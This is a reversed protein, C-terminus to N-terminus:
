CSKKGANLGIKYGSQILEDYTFLQQIELASLARNYIRIEDIDGKYAILRLPDYGIYLYSVESTQVDGLNINTSESKFKGDIYLKVTNVNERVGVVFHWKYDKVLETTTLVASDHTGSKMGFRITEPSETPDGQILQVFHLGSEIMFIKNYNGDNPVRLWFVISYDDMWPSFFESNKISIYDDTGDFSFAGNKNGFRDPVEIAGYIEGHNNNGSEDNANGNFPFYAILNQNIDALVISYNFTTTMSIFLFHTIFIVLKNM